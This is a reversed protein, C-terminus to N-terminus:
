ILWDILWDISNVTRPLSGSTVWRVEQSSLVPSHTQCAFAASWHKGWLRHGASSLSFWNFFLTSRQRCELIPLWVSLTTWGWCSAHCLSLSHTVLSLMARSQIYCSSQIQMDMQMNVLPNCEVIKCALAPTLWVCRTCTSSHTSIENNSHDKCAPSPLRASESRSSWASSNLAALFGGSAILFPFYTSLRWISLRRGSLCRPDVLHLYWLWIAVLQCTFCLVVSLAFCQM